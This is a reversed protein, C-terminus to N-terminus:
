PALDISDVTIVPTNPWREDLLEEGTVVVKKGKFPKLAINTTPTWIYEILRNNDLSRLEYYSPAQISTMGKLLGERTVVRKVLPEPEPPTIVPVQVAPAPVSVTPVPVPVSVTPPVPPPPPVTLPAPPTVVAVTPVVPPPEVVTTPPKAVVLTEAPKLETLTPPPPPLTPIVVPTPKVMAVPKVVKPPKVEAIATPPPEKSLLHAAVFGHAIGPAEIKLWGNKEGLVTVTDGKELRGLVSHDESPGARFNLRRAKVTKNTADIYDHNVWATVNTPLAIRFWKAPEDTKPKKLTVEELVTVAQGKQLHAVVESNIAAQARVNVNNQKAVAPEPVSDKPAGAKETKNTHAAVAHTAPSLAPASVITLGLAAVLAPLLWQNTKM